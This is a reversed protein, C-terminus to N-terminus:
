TFKNKTLQTSVDLTLPSLSASPEKVKGETLKATLKKVAKLDPVQYSNNKCEQTTKSFDFLMSNWTYVLISYFITKKNFHTFFFLFM